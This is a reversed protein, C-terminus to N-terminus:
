IEGKNLMKEARVAARAARCASYSRARINGCESLAVGPCRVCYDLFRCGVCDKLDAYKINRIKDLASDNWISMFSRARLNGVSQRVSLCPLVDGFPTISVTNCGLGCVPEFDDPRFRDVHKRAAEHSRRVGSRGVHMVLFRYIEDESLGHEDMLQRGDDAPALLYDFVFRSKTARAFDALARYEGLNYKLFITKVIVPLARERCLRIANITKSHSGPVGTIKDHLAPTMAYLSMEVSLPNVAALGDALNPTLLTGNTLLRMAFGRERAARLINMLDRRCFIEGGTFCLFLCNAQALQDLINEIEPFSMENKARKQSVYCHLCSLNCRYTLELHAMFPIHKAYTKELIRQFPNRPPRSKNQQNEQVARPRKKIQTM